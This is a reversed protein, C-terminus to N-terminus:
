APASELAAELADQVTGPRHGTLHEIRREAVVAPDGASDFLAHAVLVDQDTLVDAFLAFARPLVPLVPLVRLKRGTVKAQQEMLGAYTTADVTGIDYTAPELDLAHVLYTVADSLGIPQTETRLARPAPLPVGDVVTTLVDVLRCLLEYSTGGPGLVLSARLEVTPLHAALVDGVEHRSRLHPSGKGREGLGGLYVIRGLDATEAAQGFAEAWGRDVREFDPETLAHLLYYAADVGELASAISGRDGADLAIPTGPGDYSGPRRTAARVKHGAAVLEPILSRGIFGTAGTM